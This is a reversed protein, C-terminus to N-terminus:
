ESPCVSYVDSPPSLFGPTITSLLGVKLPMPCSTLTLPWGLSCIPAIKGLFLFFGSVRCSNLNLRFDGIFGQGRRNGEDTPPLHKSGSCLRQKYSGLAARNM